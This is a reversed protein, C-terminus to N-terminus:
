EGTVGPVHGLEGNGKIWRLEELPERLLTLHVPIPLSCGGRPLSMHLHDGLSIGPSVLCMSSLSRTGKAEWLLEM